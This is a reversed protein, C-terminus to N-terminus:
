IQDLKIVTKKYEGAGTGYDYNLEVSKNDLWKLDYNNNSFPTYGDDTTIQIKLDKIFIFGKREYFNSWGALLFSGDEIVSTSSKNPAKFYFYNKDNNFIFTIVLLMVISTIAIFKIVYKMRKINYNLILMSNIIILINVVVNIITQNIQFFLIYMDLANNLIFLIVRILILILLTGKLEKNTINKKM